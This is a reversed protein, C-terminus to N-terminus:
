VAGQDLMANATKLFGAINAGNVYNGPSDYKAATELATQHIEQMIMSLRNDVEERTWAYRMSNQAMELGSVAVGGANAAKGPGYLVKNDLFIKTGNPTTPMNAGESICFCGNELLTKADNGDLENQTACPLAVDCKVNWVGKGDRYEVGPFKQAMESIRGRRVNKLDMLEAWMEQTLGDSFYETDKEDSTNTFPLVAISHRSPEWFNQSLYYLLGGGGVTLTVVLAVFPLFKLKPASGDADEHKVVGRLTFEYAWALIFTVPFGIVVLSILVTMSNDPIPLRDFTVDAVQLLMWAAVTYAVMARFVSRSRM